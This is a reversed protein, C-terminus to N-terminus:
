FQKLNPFPLAFLSCLLKLSYDSSGAHVPFAMTFRLTLMEEGAKDDGM